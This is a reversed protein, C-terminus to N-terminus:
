SDHTTEGKARPSNASKGAGRKERMGEHIFHGFFLPLVVFAVFAVAVLVVVYLVGSGKKVTLGIESRSRNYRNRDVKRGM